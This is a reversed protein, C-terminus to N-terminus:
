PTIYAAYAREAIGCMNVNREILFYGGDGWSDGWSNRAIWFPTGSDSVGFGTLVVVHTTTRHNGGCFSLIKPSDRYFRLNQSNFDVAIPGHRYLYMMMDYEDEATASSKGIKVLGSFRAHITSPYFCCSRTVDDSGSEYKYDSEKALGGARLVYEIAINHFGGNCDGNSCSVVQQTSLEVLPHHGQIAWVSEMQAVAAFAWCSGCSGQNKVKTVVPPHRDRWDFCKPIPGTWDVHDAISRKDVNDTELTSSNNVNHRDDSMLFISEFEDDSMDAFKNIGFPSFRDAKNLNRIKELNSHFIAARLNREKGSEYVKNYEETFDVFQQM